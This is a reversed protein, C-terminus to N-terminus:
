DAPAILDADRFYKRLRADATRADLGGTYHAAGKTPLIHNVGSCKDGLAVTTQEGIFLSGYSRLKKIYCSNGTNQLELHEPAYADSVLNETCM